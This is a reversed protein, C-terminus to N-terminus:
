SEVRGAPAFWKFFRMAAMRAEAKAMPADACVAVAGAAAGAVEAAGAGFASLEIFLSAALGALFVWLLEDEFFFEDVWEVSLAALVSFGAAQADPERDSARGQGPKKM